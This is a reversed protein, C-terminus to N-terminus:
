QPTATADALRIVGVDTDILEETDLNVLFNSSIAGSAGAFAGTGSEIAWAVVGHSFGDSDPAGLLSGAGISSFSLSSSGPGGFTVSRSEFFLKGDHNLTYSLALVAADGPVPELTADISGGEIRTTLRHFQLVYTLRRM